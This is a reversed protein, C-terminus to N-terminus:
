LQQTVDALLTFLESESVGHKKSVEKLSKGRAFDFCIKTEKTGIEWVHGTKRNWVLGGFREKRLVLEPAWQKVREPRSVLDEPNVPRDCDLICCFADCCIVIASDGPNFYDKVPIKGIKAPKIKEQSIDGLYLKARMEKGTTNM